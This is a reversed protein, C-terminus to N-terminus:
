IGDLKNGKIEFSFQYYSYVQNESERKEEHLNVQLGVLLLRRQTGNLYFKEQHGWALVLELVTNERINWISKRMANSEEAEKM